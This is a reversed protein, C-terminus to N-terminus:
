HADHHEIGETNRAPTTEQGTTLLTRITPDARLVALARFALAKVTGQSCGLLEAAEAV